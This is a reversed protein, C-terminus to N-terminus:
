FLGLMRANSLQIEVSSAKGFLKHAIFPEPLLILGLIPLYQKRM